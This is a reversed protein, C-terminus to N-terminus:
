QIRRVKVMDPSIKLVNRHSEYFVAFTEVVSNQSLGSTPIKAPFEFKSRQFGRTKWTQPRTENTRELYKKQLLGSTNERSIQIQSMWLQTDDVTVFRNRKNKKKTASVVFCMRFWHYLCVPLQLKRALNSHADSLAEYRRCKPTIKRLLEM